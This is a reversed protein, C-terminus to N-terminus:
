GLINFITRQAIYYSRTTWGDMRDYHAHALRLSGAWGTGVLRDQTRSDTEIRCVPENTGYKLDCMYIIDYPIQRKKVESLPIM